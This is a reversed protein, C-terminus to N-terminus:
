SRTAGKPTRDVPAVPPNLHPPTWTPSVMAATSLRAKSMRPQGGLRHEVPLNELLGCEHYGKRLSDLPM